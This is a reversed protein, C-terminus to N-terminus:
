FRHGLGLKERVWARMAPSIRQLQALGFVPRGTGAEDAQSDTGAAAVIADAYPLAQLFSAKKATQEANGQVMLCLDPKLHDLIRNSEFILHAGGYLGKLIAALQFAFDARSATLLAAHEAGAALYRATDTGHGAETEEWLAAPKGHEHGTVKVATWRFEPLAAILGCVLATKGVGRGSGGVVIVPM